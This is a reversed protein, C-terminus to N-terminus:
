DDLYDILLLVLYVESDDENIMTDEAEVYDDLMLKKDEGEANPTFQEMICEFILPKLENWDLEEKKAVSIYDRGYFVRTVGDIKFLKAAM